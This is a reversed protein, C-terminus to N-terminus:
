KHYTTFACITLKRIDNPEYRFALSGEAGTTIFSEVTDVRTQRASSVLLTLSVRTFYRLNLCRDSELKDVSIWELSASM